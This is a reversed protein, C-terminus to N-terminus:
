ASINIMYSLLYDFFQYTNNIRIITINNNPQSTLSVNFFSPYIIKKM